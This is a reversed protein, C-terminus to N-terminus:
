MVGGRRGKKMNTNGKKGVRKRNWKGRPKKM